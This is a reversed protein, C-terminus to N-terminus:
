VRFSFDSIIFLLYYIIFWLASLLDCVAEAFSRFVVVPLVRGTVAWGDPPWTSESLRLESIGEAV